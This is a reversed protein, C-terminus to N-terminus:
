CSIRNYSYSTKTSSPTLLSMFLLKRHLHIEGDLSQIANKGFLSQQVRMPAAGKRQFKETDYFVKVAEEGRICIVQQGLLRLKFIDTKYKDMRKNIFLYGEKLLTVTKDLGKESPIKSKTSM